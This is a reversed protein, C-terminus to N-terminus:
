SVRSTRVLLARAGRLRSRPARGHACRRGRRRERGLDWLYHDFDVEMPHRGSAHFQGGTGPTTSSWQARVEGPAPAAYRSALVDAVWAGQAEGM